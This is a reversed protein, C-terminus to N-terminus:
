SPRPLTRRLNPRVLPGVVLVVAAFAVLRLIGPEALPDALRVAVAAYVDAPLDTVVIAMALDVGLRRGALLLVGAATDFVALSTWYLSLWRPASPYPTLGGRVFDAVHTVTGVALLV